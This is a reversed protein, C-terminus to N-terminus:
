LAEQGYVLVAQEVVKCPYRGNELMSGSHQPPGLRKLFKQTAKIDLFGVLCEVAAVSGTIVEGSRCNRNGHCLGM